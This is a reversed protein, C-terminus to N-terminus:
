LALQQIEEKSLGTYRMIKEASEGDKLMERAIQRSGEQRGKQIGLQEGEQRGKQIGKLIGLQEGEQIGKLIGLQEGEQRGKQIGLQEGEQRGKQIGKLIGLQEGEQIGKQILRQATSMILEKIEPNDLTISQLKEIWSEDQSQHLFYLVLEEAYPIYGKRLFKAFDAAFRRVFGMFDRQGGAQLALAAFAVRKETLLRAYSETHLDILRFPALFHARALDPREFLEWLTTPGHYAV